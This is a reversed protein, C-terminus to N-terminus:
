FSPGLTWTWYGKKGNPRDLAISYDWRLLAFGFLNMRIGAGYSHVPARTTTVNQNVSNDWVVKQGHSWALGIDYFFLGDVPPLSIPLLGLDFRRVLPFRLEANGFAVRSGLLQIASCGGQTNPNQPLGPVGTCQLSYEERDYGRVFEPRGIYKQLMTEDRGVSISTQGRLAVTLFNFLIPFYRRYDAQYEVWQYSGLTPEIQFRYRRGAIPGTYGFLTNDSVYAVFPAAYTIGTRNSSSDWQFGTALGRSPDISRNYWYTLQDVYNFSGGFEFRTFRNLPYAAMGFAQRTVFRTVGQTQQYLGADAPLTKDYTLYWVPQQMIGSTYQLRRGMSTFAALLYAESIRGNVQGSFALRHDGLLDSLVITTGGFVGRGFNDAAYGINPRSVYEPQYGIRYGYSKFQTTDPLALAASDLLQAVSVVTEAREPASPLDASARM